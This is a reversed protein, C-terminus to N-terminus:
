QPLWLVDGPHTGPPSPMRLNGPSQHSAKTVYKNVTVPADIEGSYPEGCGLIQGPNFLSQRSHKGGHVLEFSFEGISIWLTLELTELSSKISPARLERQRKDM